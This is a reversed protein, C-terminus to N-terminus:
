GLIEKAIDIIVTDMKIAQGSTTRGWIYYPHINVVLEGHRSLKEGLYETVAYWEIVDDINSSNPSSYINDILIPLESPDDVFREAYLSGEVFTSVNLLVDYAVLNECAKELESM